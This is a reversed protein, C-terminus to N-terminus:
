SFRQGGTHGLPRLFGSSRAWFPRREEPRLEELLKAQRHAAAKAGREVGPCTVSSLQRGLTAVETCLRAECFLRKSGWGPAAQSGPSGHPHPLSPISAPNVSCPMQPAPCRHCRTLGPTLVAHAALAKRGPTRLWHGMMPVNTGNVGPPWAARPSRTWGTRRGGM